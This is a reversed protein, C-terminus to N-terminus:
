PRTTGVEHFNMVGEPYPQNNSGTGAPYALDLLNEQIQATMATQLFALYYDEQKMIEEPCALKSTTLREITLSYSGDENQTASYSGNYTNCGAFGAIEGDLFQLTIATGPLLSQDMLEDLTWVLPTDLRTTIAVQTTASSNVEQLM